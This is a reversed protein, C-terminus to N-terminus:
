SRAVGSILAGLDETISLTASSGLAAYDLIIETYDADSGPQGTKRTATVIHDRNLLVESNKGAGVRHVIMLTAM